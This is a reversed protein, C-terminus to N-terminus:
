DVRASRVTSRNGVERAIGDAWAEIAPWDRFDGEPMFRRTVFREVSSLDSGDLTGRDIAGAFTRHDRPHIARRFGAIERPEIPEPATAWSGVPGSSFLWVPKAALASRNRRVLDAAKKMWHQAYVGSGIVYADAEPLDAIREASALGVDLGAAVLRAAVREAIGQTAGLRSGYVVLVRMAAM